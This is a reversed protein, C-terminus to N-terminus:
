SARRLFTQLSQVDSSNRLNRMVQTEIQRIRERTLGFTRGVEELTHEIGDDLGFRMRIVKQERPTLKELAALTRERMDLDLVAEVPSISSTNELLDGLHTEEEEGVPMDLSLPEQGIQMLGRVKDVEIGMWDAIEEPTPKRGLKKALAENARAFRHVAETMHVPLRVTRAQMSISRTVSQWIWWTAYTSFKYGRRWDFKDVAKMLGINGEQILDLFDLGRNQYKKAISVVLRLNAQVLEQKARQAEAEGWEISKVIHQLDKSGFSASLLARLETRQASLERMIEQRSDKPAAKLRRELKSIETELLRARQFTERIKAVLRLREAPHLGIERVLRSIEIRRRALHHEALARAKKQPARRARLYERTTSQRLQAIRELLDLTDRTVKALQKPALPEEGCDVMSDVARAQSRLAETAVVLEQWAIPSRSIARLARLKGREIRQALRVEGERTLLATRGMERLYATVPNLVEPAESPTLDLGDDPESSTEASVSPEMVQEMAEDDEALTISSTTLEPEVALM